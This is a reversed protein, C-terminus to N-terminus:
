AVHEVEVREFGGRLAEEDVYDLVDPADVFEGAAGLSCAHDNESAAQDLVMDRVCAEMTIACLAGHIDVRRLFEIPAISPRSRILSNTPPLDLGPRITHLHIALRRDHKRQNHRRSKRLPLPHLRPLPSIQTRHLSSTTPINSVFGIILKLSLIILRWHIALHCSIPYQVMSTWYAYLDLCQVCCDSLMVANSNSLDQPM